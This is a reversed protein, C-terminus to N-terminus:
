HRGKFADMSTFVGFIKDAVIEYLWAPMTGKMFPIFNVIWPMCVKSKNNKVAIMIRNVADDPTLIPIMFPAKVGDFMGTNIYSPCVTTVRVGPNLRKLELRLADSWGLVAWKSSCYTSQRPLSVMGAASAINVIHGSKQEIMKDLFCHAVHMVGLVNVRIAKEIDQQTHEWFYKGVVIGANNFLIDVAGIEQLVKKAEAEIQAPDSVDVVGTHITWGKERFEEATANLSEPNIDWLVASKAGQELARQAMLKGIGMAGGTVLINKGKFDSM